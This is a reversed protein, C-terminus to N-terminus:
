TLLDKNKINRTFYYNTLVIAPAIFSTSWCWVSGVTRPYLTLALLFALSFFLLLIFKSNRPKVWVFMLVVSIVYSIGYWSHPYPWQLRNEPNQCKNCTNKLPFTVDPYKRPLYVFVVIVVFFLLGILAPIFDKLVLKKKSIFILSLIIGIGIALNHTALLYKGFSTGRKNWSIDNKDIGYWIMLESLQMQAYALILCGLVIQRTLFAFVASAMGFIYSVLSTRFSYCM